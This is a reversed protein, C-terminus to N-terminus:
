CSQVGSQPGARESQAMLERLRNLAHHTQSKVNGETCGLASATEAVSLDEFYRLVLVARQSPPLETILSRLTERLVIQGDVGDEFPEIGQHLWSEAPQRYRRRWRDTALNVLVKRAYPLPNETATRWHSAVRLFATQVLDEAHGRDGTLLYATRYLTAAYEAVFADFDPWQAKPILV